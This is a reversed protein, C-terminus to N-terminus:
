VAGRIIDNKNVDPTVLRDQGEIFKGMKSTQYRLLNEGLYNGLTRTGWLLETVPLIM